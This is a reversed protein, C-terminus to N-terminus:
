SAGVSVVKVFLESDPSPPCSCSGRESSVVSTLYM